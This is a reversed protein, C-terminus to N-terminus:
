KKREEAKQEGSRVLTSTRDSRLNPDLGRRLDTERKSHPKTHENGKGAVVFEAVVTVPLHVPPSAPPPEDPCFSPSFKGATNGSCPM